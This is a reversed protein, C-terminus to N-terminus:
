CEAILLDSVCRALWLRSARITAFRTRSHGVKL